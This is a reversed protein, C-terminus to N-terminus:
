SLGGCLEVMAHAMIEANKLLAEVTIFEDAGHMNVDEGPFQAGFAVGGKIHHVYTGGGIALCEGREGTVSEYVSLLTQVFPSSGDTHHPEDLLLVETEFGCRSLMDSMKTVIENGNASVPFRIDNKATFGSPTLELMSLVLTLEGSIDDRCNVSCSKGDTEGYPFLKALTRVAKTQSSEPLPMAAILELLATLANRGKEPASAHASAGVATIHLVGDRDTFSFDIGKPQVPLSRRATEASIGAIEAEAKGPVANIVSGGHLSLIRNTGSFSDKIGLRVMGKEINIVPYSGDPTFVMPPMKRSSLYYQLDASGNEENTGFILRVGSKLPIGLEKVARAAFVAAVAPGKDDSSGRGYLRGSVEDYRLSFPDSSWGDCEPVVDLHCLVALSPYKECIDASGAYNDSNETIFGYKRCRSLMFKLARANEIGFPAGESAKDMVSRISVLEDLLDIMENKHSQIYEHIESTYKM